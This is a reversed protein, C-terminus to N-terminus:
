VLPRYSGFSFASISSMCFSVLDSLLMSPMLCPTALYITKIPGASKIISDFVAAYREVSSNWIAGCRAAHKMGLFVGRFNVANTADFDEATVEFFPQTHKHLCIGANNVYTNLAGFHEM